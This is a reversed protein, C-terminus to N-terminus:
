PSLNHTYTLLQQLSTKGMKRFVCPNHPYKPVKSSARTDKSAHVLLPGLIGRKKVNPCRIRNNM